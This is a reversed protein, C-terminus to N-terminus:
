SIFPHNALTIVLVYLVLLALLADAMLEPELSSRAFHYVNQSLKKEIACYKLIYRIAITNTLVQELM